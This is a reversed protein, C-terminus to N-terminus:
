EWIPCASRTYTRSASAYRVEAADWDKVAANMEGGIYRAPKQVTDLLADIKRSLQM